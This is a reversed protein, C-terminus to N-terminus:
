FNMEVEKEETVLAGNSNFIASIRSAARREKLKSHYYANNQDSLVLWDLKTRQKHLELEYRLLIQYEEFANKEDEQLCINGGDSALEEQLKSLQIAKDKVKESIKAYESRHLYKLRRKVEKLKQTIRYM